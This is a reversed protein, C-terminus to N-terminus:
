QEDLIEKQDTIADEMGTIQEMEEVEKERQVVEFILCNMEHEIQKKREPTHPVELTRVLEGLRRILREAQWETHDFPREM